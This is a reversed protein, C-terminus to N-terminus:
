RPRYTCGRSIPRYDKVVTQWEADAGDAIDDDDSNFRLYLDPTFFRM